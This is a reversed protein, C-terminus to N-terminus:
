SAADEVEDEVAPEIGEVKKLVHMEMTSIQLDWDMTWVAPLEYEAHKPVRLIVLCDPSTIDPRALRELSRFFQTGPRIHGVMRYPPDFFVLDYPYFHELGKPKFSTRLIDTRWLFADDGAGLKDRNQQLLEYARADKEFFVASKAGRSLAEFGLTGTGAFVDAVREGNLNGGLNEFLIEKARDTIPRTTMGARSLLKRGRFRGTIIRM